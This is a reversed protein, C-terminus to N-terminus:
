TPDGPPPRQNRLRNHYGCLLRGNEQTTPGDNAYPIIHDAQCRRAPEDCYPHTCERDRVEIARRTGGTFLRSHCSVEVRGGPEFVARELWARELWPVLSGPALAQGQALEIIRGAFTEYGVLVTFLPDPRRGDAPASASRTAMEVLADARRQGPTRGLDALTPEHGLEDKAKAWDAEFLEQQIRELEGAVIAGSIADFTMQGLWMGDLSPILFVDRRAVKAADSAEAGDPDARQEWYTLARTFHAFTLNRAHRVLLEEDRELTAETGPRRLAIFADVHAGNIEGKSWARAVLPLHRLEKGQRVQRRALAKPLRCSTAVWALASRAGDTGWAGSADFAGVARAVVADLRALQRELEVVTAGEELEFSDCAALGDIAEKLAEIGV